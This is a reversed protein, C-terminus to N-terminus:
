LYRLRMAHLVVKIRNKHWTSIRPIQFHDSTSYVREYISTFAYKYGAEQIFEKHQDSYDGKKGNPYAYLDIECELLSELDLRSQFINMKADSDDLTSLIEHNVGHSGITFGYHNKLRSVDKSSLMLRPIEIKVQRSILEICDNIIHLDQVKLFELLSRLSIVRQAPSELSLVDGGIERLDLTDGSFARIYETVVDTWLNVNNTIASTIVFLAAHCDYRELIPAANVLNDMYGDDFTIAMANPPLDCNFCRDLAEHLPMIEFLRSLTRIEFEFDKKTILRPDLPDPKDIVRHYNVIWLKSGARNKSLVTM